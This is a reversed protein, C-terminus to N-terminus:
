ASNGIRCSAGASPSRCRLHGLNQYSDIEYASTAPVMTDDELTHIRLGSSPRLVPAHHLSADMFDADGAFRLRAWSKRYREGDLRSVAIERRVHDALEADSCPGVPGRRPGIAFPPKQRLSRYVSPRSVQGVLGAVCACRAGSRLLPCLLALADPENRSRWAAATQQEHEVKV